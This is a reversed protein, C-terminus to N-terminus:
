IEINEVNTYDIKCDERNLHIPCPLDGNQFKFSLYEHIESETLEYNYFKYVKDEHMLAYQIKITM